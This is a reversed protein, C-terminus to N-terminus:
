HDPNIWIRNKLILQYNNIMLEKLVLGVDTKPQLCTCQLIDFLIIKNAFETDFTLHKGISNPLNDDHCIQKIVELEQANKQRFEPSIKLKSNEKIRRLISDNFFYGKPSSNQGDIYIDIQM